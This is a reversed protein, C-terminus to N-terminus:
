ERRANFHKKFEDSFSKGVIFPTFCVLLPSSIILFIALILYERLSLLRGKQVLEIYVKCLFMLYFACFVMM